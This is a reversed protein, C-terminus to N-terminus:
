ERDKQEKSLRRFDDIDNEPKSTHGARGNAKWNRLIASVYKWNRANRQVAEEVAEVMWSMPYEAEDIKLQDAIMPTLIGINKEYLDYISLKSQLPIPLAQALEKLSTEGSSLAEYLKIGAPTAPILYHLGPHQFESFILLLRTELAEALAIEYRDVSGGFIPKVADALLYADVILTPGEQEGLLRFFTLLLVASDKRCDASSVKVAFDEPLNVNFGADQCFGYSLSGDPTMM